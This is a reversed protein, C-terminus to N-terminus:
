VCGQAKKKLEKIKAKLKREGQPWSFSDNYGAIECAQQRTAGNERSEDYRKEKCWGRFLMGM